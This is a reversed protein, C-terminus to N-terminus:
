HATDVPCAAAFPEGAFRARMFAIQETVSQTMAPTHDLGPYSHFLLTSGARCARMVTSRVGDIAVTQDAEGTIVLLPKSVRIKGLVNEDAWRKVYANQRWDARLAAHKATDKFTVYGAYWCGHDIVAPYQAMVAPTLLSDPKFGDFRAQIGAAAWPLYLTMAPHDDLYALFGLLEAAGSVSVSGLYDPDNRQSELEAVGWSALGGQSHGDSVWRRGLSPVAKRAAPVSYLVDLAQSGKNIYLHAGESGLGHYDTAVIAFGALLLDSLGLEGYYADRMLSPACERAVGSTGHAWAVVPWGGAPAGGAPTLVMGTTVVDRGTVDASHYAIRVAKGLGKVAYGDFPEQGLLAGPKSAKLDYPRSYLTTAPLANAHELALAQDLTAPLEEACAAAALLGAAILRASFKFITM